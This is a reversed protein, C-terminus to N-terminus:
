RAQPHLQAIVYIMWGLMLGNLCHWLFHTGIHIHDCIAHDITRMIQSLTLILVGIVLGRAVHPFSTRAFFAYILILIPVPLYVVSGNLSGVLASLGYITAAAYPIFGVVALSALGNGVVFIRKTALFIYVLIYAVISLSDALGTWETAFSHFSGSALGIIATILCLLQAGRDHRVKPLVILAAIVFALNTVLNIPEAWLGPELRECYADVYEM